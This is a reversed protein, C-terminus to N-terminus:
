KRSRLAATLAAASAAAAAPKPDARLSKIFREGGGTLLISTADVHHLKVTRRSAVTVLAFGAFVAFAALIPLPNDGVYDELLYIVGIAGGVGALLLLLSIRRLTRHLPCLGVDITVTKQSAEVFKRHRRRLFKSLYPVDGLAFAQVAMDSADERDAAGMWAWQQRLRYSRAPANCRVCRDPMQAGTDVTIV